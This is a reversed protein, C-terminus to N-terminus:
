YKYGRMMTQDFQNDAAGEAYQKFCRYDNRELWDSLRHISEYLQSKLVGSEDKRKLQEGAFATM